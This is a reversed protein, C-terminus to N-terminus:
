GSVSAPWVVSWTILSMRLLEGQVKRNTRCRDQTCTGLDRGLRETREDTHVCRGCRHREDPSVDSRYLHLNVDAPLLVM